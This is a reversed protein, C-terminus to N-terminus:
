VLLLIHLVTEASVIVLAVTHDSYTIVYNLITGYAM